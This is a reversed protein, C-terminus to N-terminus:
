RNVPEWFYGYLEALTVIAKSPIFVANCLSVSAMLYSKWVAKNVYYETVIWLRFTDSVGAM